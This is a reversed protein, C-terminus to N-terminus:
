DKQTLVELVEPRPDYFVGPILAQHSKAKEIFAPLRDGLIEVAHRVGSIDSLAARAAEEEARDGMDSSRRRQTKLADQLKASMALAEDVEKQWEEGKKIITSLKALNAMYVDRNAVM